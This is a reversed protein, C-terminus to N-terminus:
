KDIAVRCDYALGGQVDCEFLRVLDGRQDFPAHAMGAIAAKDGSTINARLSERCDDQALQNLVRTQTKAREVPSDDGNRGVKVIRAALRRLIGSSDGTQFHDIDDVLRGGRRQSIGKLRGVSGGIQGRVSNQWVFFARHEDVIKAASSEVDRQNTQG